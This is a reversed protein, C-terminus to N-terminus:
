LETNVYGVWYPIFIFLGVVAATIAAMLVAGAALDKTKGALPNHEPSVLNTLTEISTNFIEAVWVMGICLILLCWEMRTVDFGYAMGLVVISSLVHLRMNPEFRFVASLGNFAFRFSNLRSKIYSPRSMSADTLLTSVRNKSHNVTCAPIFNLYLATSKIQLVSPLRASATAFKRLPAHM